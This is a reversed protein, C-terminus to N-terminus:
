DSIILALLPYFWRISDNVYLHIGTNSIIKLPKLLTALAHHFLKRIAIRFKTSQKESVNYSELNPIYGLLIKADIKNHRALPINGLTMFIPHRSTKRLHDCLTSNICYDM